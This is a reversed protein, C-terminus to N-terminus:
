AAGAVLDPLLGATFYGGNFFILRDANFRGGLSRVDGVVITHDGGDYEKHL